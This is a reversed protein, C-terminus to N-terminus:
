NKRIREADEKYGHFVFIVPLRDRQRAGAPTSGIYDRKLGGATLSRHDSGPPGWPEVERVDDAAPLAKTTVGPEKVGGDGGSCGTLVLLVTSLAAATVTSVKGM